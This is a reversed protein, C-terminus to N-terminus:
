LNSTKVCVYMLKWKDRDDTHSNIDWGRITNRLKRGYSNCSSLKAFPIPENIPFGPRRSKNKGAGEEIFVLPFNYYRPIEDSNNSQSDTCSFYTKFKYTGEKSYFNRLLIRLSFIARQCSISDQFYYVFPSHMAGTIYRNGKM